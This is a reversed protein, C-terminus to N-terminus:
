VNRSGQGLNDSKGPDFYDEAAGPARSYAKMPGAMPDEQTGKWNDGILPCPDKTHTEYDRIEDGTYSLLCADYVADGAGM